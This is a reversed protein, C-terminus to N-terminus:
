DLLIANQMEEAFARGSATLAVLDDHEVSELLRKEMLREVYGKARKSNLRLRFAIEFPTMPGGRLAELIEVYIRFRSRRAPQAKWVTLVAPSQLAAPSEGQTLGSVPVLVYSGDQLAFMADGGSPLQSEQFSPVGTPAGVMGDIATEPSVSGDVSISFYDGAGPATGGHPLVIAQGFLQSSELGSTASVAGAYSLILLALLVPKSTGCTQQTPAM